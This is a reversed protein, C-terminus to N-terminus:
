LWSELLCKRLKTRSPLAKRKKAKKIYFFFTQAEETRRRSNDFIWFMNSVTFKAIFPMLFGVAKYAGNIIRKTQKDLDLVAFDRMYFGSPNLVPLNCQEFSKQM